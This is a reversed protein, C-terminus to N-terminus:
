SCEQEVFLMFSHAYIIEVYRCGLVEMCHFACGVLAKFGELFATGGSQSSHAQAGIVSQSQSSCCWFVAVALM